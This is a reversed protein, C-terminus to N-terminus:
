KSLDGATDPMSPKKYPPLKNLSLPLAPVALLYMYSTIPSFIISVVFAWFASRNKQEAIFCNVIAGVIWPIFLFEM